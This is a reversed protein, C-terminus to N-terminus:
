PSTGWLTREQSLAGCFFSPRYSFTPSVVCDWILCPFCPLAARSCLRTPRKFCAQDLPMFKLRPLPLVCPHDSWGDCSHSHVGRTDSIWAEVAPTSPSPSMRAVAPQRHPNFGSSNQTSSYGSCLQMNRHIVGEQEDGIPLPSNVQTGGHKFYGHLCWQQWYNLIQYVDLTGFLFHKMQLQWCNWNLPAWYACAHCKRRIWKKEQARSGERCSQMSKYLSLTSFMKSM